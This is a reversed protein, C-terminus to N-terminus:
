QYLYIIVYRTRNVPPVRHPVSKCGFNIARGPVDPYFVGEIEVGDNLDNLSVVINHRYLAIDIHEPMGGGPLYRNICAEELMAGPIKPAISRLYKNFEKPQQRDGCFDYNAVVDGTTPRSNIKDRHFWVSEPLSEIKSLVVKALEKDFVQFSVPLDQGTPKM